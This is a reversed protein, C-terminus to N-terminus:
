FDYMADFQVSYNSQNLMVLQNEFFLGTIIFLFM